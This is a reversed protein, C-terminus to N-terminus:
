RNPTHPKESMFVTTVSFGEMTSRFLVNGGNAATREEIAELGLGKKFTGSCVGNDKYEVRLARNFMRISLTFKTAKGHKLTNTMTETLNDKICLWLHMSIEELDGSTELATEMDYSTGFEELMTKLESLGLGARDPREEHLAKRISDVGGRLNDIATQMATQAREPDAAILYKAGELLIISGSINHGLEDHIRAAFRNREELAATSRVSRVYEKIGSIKKRQAALEASQETTRSTLLTIKRNLFRMTGFTLLLALTLFVTQMPPRFLLILLLTCVGTIEWFLAEDTGCDATQAATIVALPLLSGGTHLCIGIVALRLVIAPIPTRLFSAALVDAAFLCGLLLFLIIHEAFSGSDDAIQSVALLLAAAKAILYLFSTKM